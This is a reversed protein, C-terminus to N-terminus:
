GRLKAFIDISIFKGNKIECGQMTGEHAFGFKQLVKKSNVNETEVFAEIRHLNMQKFAYDCIALMAETIIGRGWYDPLLWFGIEGKKHEKKIDNLGIAGYFLRNDPSCIAFWQGTGNQEHGKFWDMQEQTAELTTFNVGYYKIVEPHSLGGFVNELDSQRFPRLLLHETKITHPQPKM